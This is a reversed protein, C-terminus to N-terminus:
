HSGTNRPADGHTDRQMYTHTDTHTPLAHTRGRTHPQTEHHTYGGLAVPEGQQTDQLTRGAEEGAGRVQLLGEEVPGYSAEGLYPEM